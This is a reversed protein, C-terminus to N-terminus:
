KINLIAKLLYEKSYFVSLDNIKTAKKSLGSDTRESNEIIPYGIILLHFYTSRVGGDVM